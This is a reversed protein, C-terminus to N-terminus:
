RRGILEELERIQRKLEYERRNLEELIRDKNELRDSGRVRMIEINIDNECKRFEELKMKYGELDPNETTKYSNTDDDVFRHIVSKPQAGGQLLRNNGNFQMTRNGVHCVSKYNGTKLIDDKCDKYLDNKLKLIGYEEIDSDNDNFENNIIITFYKSSDYLFSQLFFNTLKIYL